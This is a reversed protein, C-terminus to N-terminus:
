APRQIVVTASGAENDTTLVVFVKLALRAGPMGLGFTTVFEQAEAPPHGPAPSLAPLTTVLTTNSNM